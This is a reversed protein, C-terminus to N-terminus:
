NRFRPPHLEPSEPGGPDKTLETGALGGQQETPGLGSSSPWTGVRKREIRRKGTKNLHLQGVASHVAYHEPVYWPIIIM